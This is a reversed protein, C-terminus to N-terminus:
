RAYTITSTRLISQGASAKMTTTSVTTVTAVTTLESAVRQMAIATIKRARKDAEERAQAEVDRVIVMADRKAEDEIREVLALKADQATMGALKFFRRGKTVPGDTM